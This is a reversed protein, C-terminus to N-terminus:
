LELKERETENKQSEIEKEIADVIAVIKAYSTEKVKINEEM